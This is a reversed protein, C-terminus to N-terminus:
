LPSLSAEHDVVRGPVYPANTSLYHRLVVGVCRRGSVGQSKLYACYLCSYLGLALRVISSRYDFYVIFMAIIFFHNDWTM